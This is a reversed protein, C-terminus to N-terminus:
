KDAEQSGEDGMNAACCQGVLEACVFFGTEEGVDLLHLQVGFDCKVESYAIRV